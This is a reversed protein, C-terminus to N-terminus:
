SLLKPWYLRKRCCVKADHKWLHSNPYKWLLSLNVHSRGAVIHTSSEDWSKTPHSCAKPSGSLLCNLANGPLQNLPSVPLVRKWRPIPLKPWQLETRLADWVYRLLQQFLPVHQNPLKYIKCESMKLMRVGNPMSLFFPDFAITTEQTLPQEIELPKAKWLSQLLREILKHGKQRQLLFSHSLHCPLIYM